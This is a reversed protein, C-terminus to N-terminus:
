PRPVSSVRFPMGRRYLSARELLGQRLADAPAMALAQEAMQVAEAFRRADAYAAALADLALIETDHGRSAVLAREGTEVAPQASRIGSDHHAALLWTFNILCSANRPESALAMRYEQLAERARGSEVLARALDCRAGANAADLRLAATYGDIADTLARQRYRLAALRLYAPAYNADAIIAERYTAAAEEQRGLAELAVGVNFASAPREPKLRRAAAFHELARQPQQMELYILAADNRLNFHAPERRILTEVGIADEATAKRRALRTLNRGDAETDTLVQVWIDAMEDATRWGWGVDQAPVIPNRPNENSNDFRFVSELTTGAPLRMPNALRYHDQWRFDWDAIHLLTRRSGDPLRAILAVDRARQHSHPQIATVTMAVPTVFTDISEFRRDGARIALDQRGLRIMAPARSPRTDTFYLGLLPRVPEARGTPQMHLQVVFYTGGALPWALDNVPPAAQGPTWGLFHGDPYAASHLIVGEYGPAPDTLDLQESATTADVRINAHHVATSRPRLQFGRVHRTGTFPVPVVFNRFVDGGGAPMVYEPLAITLDPMGWAWGNTPELANVESAAGEPMGAAVWRAIVAKEDASLRRDGVFAASEASPKWPPMYGSATVQRIMSGRRRVQEFTELPFPADGDERHCTLCKARLIPSIDATFTPNGIRSPADGAIQSASVLLWPPAFMCCALAGARLLPTVAAGRYRLSRPSREDEVLLVRPQGDRKMTPEYVRDFQSMFAGRIRRAAENRGLIGLDSTQSAGRSRAVTYSATM